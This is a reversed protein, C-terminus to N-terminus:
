DCEGHGFIDIKDDFYCEKRSSSSNRHSNFEGNNDQFSSSSSSLARGLLRLSLGKVKQPSKIRIIIVHGSVVSGPSYIAKDFAILM